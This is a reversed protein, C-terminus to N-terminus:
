GVSQREADRSRFLDGITSVVEDISMDSTDVVVSDSAPRLPSDDRTSDIHDREAISAAVSDVDGGSQAVRREARVHPSATLFIKLMADPFVVTGIDRGEVVGGGNEVIWRRQRTRMEDRVPSHTAIVSVVSNVSETRIDISVDDGDVFVNGETLELSIRRALDGMATADRIDSGDRLAAFAVGRYMAGTDLFPLHIEKAVLRAITSKGAGAPGDLAVVRVSM